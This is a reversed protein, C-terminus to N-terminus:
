GAGDIRDPGQDVPARPSRNRLVLLAAVSLSVACLLWTFRDMPETALLLAAIGGLNGAVLLWRVKQKWGDPTRMFAWVAGVVISLLWGGVMILAVLLDIGDINHDPIPPAM